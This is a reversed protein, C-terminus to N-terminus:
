PVRFPAQDPTLAANALTLDIGLFSDIMLQSM